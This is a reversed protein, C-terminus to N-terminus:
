AAREEWSPTVPEHLVGDEAVLHLQVPAPGRAIVKRVEAERRALLGLELPARHRDIGHSGLTWRQKIELLEIREALAALEEPTLRTIATRFRALPLALLTDLRKKERRTLHTRKM